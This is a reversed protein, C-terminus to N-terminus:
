PDAHRFNEPAQHPLYAAIWMELTQDHWSNRGIVYPRMEDRYRQRLTAANLYGSRALHEVDGRDRESNRERKTLALDHAELAFLRLKEWCGPYLAVLRTAHDEPVSSATVIDLYIRHKGRLASEKGAIEILGQDSDFPVVGIVDIDATTRHLGYAQVVAFGGICHLELPHEVRCDLDNLFSLWPEKPADRRM